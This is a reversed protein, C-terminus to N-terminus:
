PTDQAFRYNRCRGRLWSLQWLFFSLSPSRALSGHRAQTICVAVARHKRARTRALSETQHCSGTEERQQDCTGYCCHQLQHEFLVLYKVHPSTMGTLPRTEEM